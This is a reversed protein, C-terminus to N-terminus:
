KVRSERNLRYRIYILKARRNNYTKRKYDNLTLSYVRNIYYSFVMEVGIGM